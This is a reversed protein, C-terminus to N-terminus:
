PTAGIAGPKKEPPTADWVTVTNGQSGILSRGDPSFAVSIFAAGPEGRFTLLEEGTNVDWVKVTGDNSASVLRRGDLSWAISRVADTHGRLTSGVKERSVDWIRLPYPGIM